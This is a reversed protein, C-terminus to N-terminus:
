CVWSRLSNIVVGVAVIAVQFLTKGL